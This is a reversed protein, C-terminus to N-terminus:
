FHAWSDGRLKYYRLEYIMGGQPTAVPQLFYYDSHGIAHYDNQNVFFHEKVFEGVPVRIDLARLLAAIQEISYTPPRINWDRGFLLDAGFISALRRDVKVRVITDEKVKIGLRNVLTQRDFPQSTQSILTVIELTNSSAM